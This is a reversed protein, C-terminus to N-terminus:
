FQKKKFKHETTNIVNLCDFFTDMMLCFKATGEADAPGFSNLVSGLTESLVQAALRVRMVSFSTLNTRSQNVSMSPVTFPKAMVTSSNSSTKFFPALNSPDTIFPNTRDSSDSITAIGSEEEQCSNGQRGFSFETPRNNQSM